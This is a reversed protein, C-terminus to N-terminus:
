FVRSKQRNVTGFACFAFVPVGNVHGHGNRVADTIVRSDTLSQKGFCHTTDILVVRFEMDYVSLSQCMSAFISRLKASRFKATIRFAFIGRQSWKQAGHLCKMGSEM